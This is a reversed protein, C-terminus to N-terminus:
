CISHVRLHLPFRSFCLDTSYQLDLNCTCQIMTNLGLITDFRVQFAQASTCKSCYWDGNPIKRLGLCFTHASGFCQLQKHAGESRDDEADAVKDDNECPLEGAVYNECVLLKEEDANSGCVDCFDVEDFKSTDNSPVVASKVKQLSPSLNKFSPPRGRKRKVETPDLSPRGRKRKVGPVNLPPRGRKRKVEGGNMPDNQKSSANLSSSFTGDNVEDISPYVNDARRQFIRHGNARKTKGAM